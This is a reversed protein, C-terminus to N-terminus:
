QGRRINAFNFGQPIDETKRMLDSRKLDFAGRLIRQFNVMTLKSAKRKNSNIHNELTDRQLGEPLSLFAKSTVLSNLLKNRDTWEDIYFAKEEDTLLIGNVRNVDSPQAISSQLRALANILPSKSQNLGPSPQFVSTALNSLVQFPQRDLEYNTGPYLVSEGALNKVARKEGYGPTVRRLGEEFIIGLEKVVDNFNNLETRQMKDLKEPELGKTINRRISSYFGTTLSQVPNFVSAYKEGTKQMKGLTSGEGAFVSLMEGFSQLYHRDTMLKVMGVTAAELLAMYEERIAGSQDEEKQLGALNVSAKLLIALNASAGM